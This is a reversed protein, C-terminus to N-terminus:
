PAGTTAAPGPSRDGGVRSLFEKKLQAPYTEDSDQEATRLPVGYTLSDGLCVVGRPWETPMAQFFTQALLRNGAATLHLGDTSMEPTPGGATDLAQMFDAVRVRKGHAMHLLARNYRDIVENPDESRETQHRALLRATDVHLITSVVPVIGHSRAQDIMWAMNAVYEDLPVFAGPNLADNGGFFLLLVSPQNKLVDHVFRDRGDASNQGPVGANIVQRNRPQEPPARM